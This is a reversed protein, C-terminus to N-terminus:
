LELLHLGVSGLVVCVCCRYVQHAAGPQEQRLDIAYGRMLQEYLNVLHPPMPSLFHLPNAPVRFTALEIGPESKGLTSTDGQSSQVLQSVCGDTHSHTCLHTCSHTFRLCFHKSHGSTLFDRHLHLGNVM